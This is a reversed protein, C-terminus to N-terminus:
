DMNCVEGFPAGGTWGDLACWIVPYDPVHAPFSGYMDTLYVLAAPTFDQGDTWEFAPRFDTGGGGKPNLNVPLDETAFTEEGHVATDVYIVHATMPYAELMGSLEGAFQSLESQGISGSTDVAVVIDGLELSHLRPMYLGQQIYRSNPMTWSYDNRAAREIFNRLVDRWDVKPNLLPDLLREVGAPLKGQMRAAQAAQITSVKWDQEAETMDAGQAPQNGGGPTPADQVGGCGGPDGPGGPQGGGGGGDGDPILNYVAETELGHFSPEDFHGDPLTFGAAKIIHNIVHDGAINWRAPNREGRRTHHQSACHMVEHALVGKVTELPLSLIWEPNYILDRGNTAATEITEDEHLILKLALAGFFPQDLILGARAKTILDHAQKNM